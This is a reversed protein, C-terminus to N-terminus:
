LPLVSQGDFIRTFEGQPNQSILIWAGKRIGWTIKWDQKALIAYATNKYTNQEMFTTDEFKIERCGNGAKELKYTKNEITFQDGISITRNHIIEHIKLLTERKM